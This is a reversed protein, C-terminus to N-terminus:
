AEIEIKDIYFEKGSLVLLAASCCRPCTLDSNDKEFANECDKCQMKPKLIHVDLEAGELITGEAMQEFYLRISGPDFGKLEGLALTLRKVRLANHEQAKKLAQNFVGEVAHHEHMRTVTTREAEQPLLTSMM